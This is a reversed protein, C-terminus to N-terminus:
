SGFPFRKGKSNIMFYKNGSKVIKDCRIDGADFNVCIKGASITYKGPSGGNFTYRGNATYKLKAGSSNITKGVIMAKLEAAPVPTDAALATAPLLLMAACAIIRKM